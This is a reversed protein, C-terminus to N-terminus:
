ALSQTRFEYSLLLDLLIQARREASEEELLLQALVPETQIHGLIRFSLADLSLEEWRLPLPQKGQPGKKWLSEFRAALEARMIASSATQPVEVEAMPQLKGIPYPERKMIELIRARSDNQVSILLRGDELEEEVSVQGFSVIRVPEFTSLNSSLTAEPHSAKAREIMRKVTCVALPRQLSICERVMTRYRPEFVHLAIKQGPFTVCNPIPFIAAEM